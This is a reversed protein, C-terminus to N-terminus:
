FYGYVIMKKEDEKKEIELPTYIKEAEIKRLSFDTHKIQWNLERYFCSQFTLHADIKTTLEVNKRRLGAKAFCWVNASIAVM